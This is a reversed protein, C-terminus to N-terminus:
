KGHRESYESLKSIYLIRASIADEKEKFEGITIRKGNVNIRAVWMKHGIHYNVGTFGSSNDNRKRRNKSNLYNNSPRLNEIRNNTRNGDIHDIQEPLTGNVYLYALRHAAYKKSIGNRTIRILIYGTTGNPQVDIKKEKDNLIRFFSGEKEDYRFMKKLTDQTLTDKTTM